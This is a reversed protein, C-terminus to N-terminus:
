SAHLDMMGLYNRFHSESNNAYWPHRYNMLSLSVMPKSTSKGFLQIQSPRSSFGLLPAEDDLVQIHSPLSILGFVLAEEEFVHSQSPLSSLGLLPAEELLVQTTSLRFIFGLFPAFADLMYSM